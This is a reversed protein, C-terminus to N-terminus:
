EWSGSYGPSSYDQTYDNNDVEGGVTPQKYITWPEEQVPSSNTPPKKGLAETALDLLSPSKPASSQYTNAPMGSFDGGVSGGGGSARMGGGGASFGGSVVQNPATVSSNTTTVGGKLVQLAQLLNNEVENGQGALNTLLGALQTSIGGYAKAQEAGLASAERSANTALQQSLLGQMASASTGAGEVSRQIAPMNRQMSDQLSREILAQADQFAAAKQYDAMLGKVTGQTEKRNAITAKQQETGGTNLTNIFSNLLALSQPDFQETVEKKTTTNSNTGSGNTSLMKRAFDFGMGAPIASFEDARTLGSSFTAM